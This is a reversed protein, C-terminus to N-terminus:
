PSLGADPHCRAIFRRQGSIASLQRSTETRRSYFRWV